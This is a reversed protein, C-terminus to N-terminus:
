QQAGGSGAKVTDGSKAKSFDGAKFISIKAVDIYKRLAANVDAAKLSSVKAEVDADWQM